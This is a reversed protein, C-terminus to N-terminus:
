GEEAQQYYKTNQGSDYEPILYLKNTVVVSILLVICIDKSISVCCCLV